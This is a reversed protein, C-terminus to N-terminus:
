KAFTKMPSDSFSARTYKSIEDFFAIGYLQMLITTYTAASGLGFPRFVLVGKFKRVLERMQVPFFSFFCIDFYNNIIKVADGPIREYFNISNLVSLDDPPITLTKDYSFDVSASLNGEDYPFSKPLYVEYGMDMLLPVEFKRLTTHNILWLARKPKTAMTEGRHTPKPTPLRTHPLQRKQHAM